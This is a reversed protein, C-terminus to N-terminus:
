GCDMRLWIRIWYLQHGHPLDKRRSDDKALYDSYHLMVLSSWIYLILRTMCLSIAACSIGYEHSEPTLVYVYNPYKTVLPACDINGVIELDADDVDLVQPEDNRSVNEFLDVGIIHIDYLWDRAGLVINRAAHIFPECGLLLQADGVFDCREVRLILLPLKGINTHITAVDMEGIYSALLVPDIEALVDFEVETLKTM